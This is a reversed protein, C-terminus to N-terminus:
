GGIRRVRHLVRNITDAAGQLDTLAETSVSYKQPHEVFDALLNRLYLFPKLNDGGIQM